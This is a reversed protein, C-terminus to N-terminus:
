SASSVKRLQCQPYDCCPAQQWWETSQVALNKQTEWYLPLVPQLM